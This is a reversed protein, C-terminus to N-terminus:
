WPTARRPSSRSASERRDLLSQYVEAGEPDDTGVNGLLISTADIQQRALDFVEIVGKPDKWRDFRSNQTVIPLDTSNVHTIHLNQIAKAKEKVRAVTEQSVYQAYDDIQVMPKRALM